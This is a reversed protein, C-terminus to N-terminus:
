RTLADLRPVLSRFELTEFLERVRQQAEPTFPAFRPGDAIPVDDRLRALRLYLPLQEAAARIAERARAPRIEEIHELIAEIGGFRAVLASATKAGIGPVGPLNDSPDGVLAARDPMQRPTVGFREVIAAEDYIEAKTAGRSVIMVRAAGGAIQLSDNDGSVVLPAEGAAAIERALTALVDDGEFGVSSFAPFGLAAILETLRGFQAGLGAPAGVRTAKYQDYSEHRFTASPTDLAWAAGAPRQEKLLKLLLVSLGYVGSTPEGLTTSMPPLAFYARYFLSFADLLLVPGAMEEAYRM